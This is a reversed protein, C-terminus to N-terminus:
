SAVAFACVSEIVAETDAEAMNTYFPLRILRDSVEETM